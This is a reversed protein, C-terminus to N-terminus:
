YSEEVINQIRISLSSLSNSFEILDPLGPRCKYQLYMSVKKHVDKQLYSNVEQIGYYPSKLKYRNPSDDLGYGKDDM